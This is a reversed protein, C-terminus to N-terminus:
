GVLDDEIKPLKQGAVKIHLQTQREIVAPNAYPKENQIQDKSHFCEPGDPDIPGNDTGEEGHGDHIKVLKIKGVVGIKLEEIDM